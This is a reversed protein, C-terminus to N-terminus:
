CSCGNKKLEEVTIGYQKAISYKTEKPMVEHFVPKQLTVATTSVVNASNKSPIILIQGM